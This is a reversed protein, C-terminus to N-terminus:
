EGKEIEGPAWMHRLGGRCRSCRARCIHSGTCGSSESGSSPIYLNHNFAIFDNAFRFTTIPHKSANLIDKFTFLYIFIIFDSTSTLESSDVFSSNPLHTLVVSPIMLWLQRALGRLSLQTVGATIRLFHPLDRHSYISSIEYRIM